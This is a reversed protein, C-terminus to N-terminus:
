SKLLRRLLEIDDNLTADIARLEEIKRVAHMVTTHDRGGFKKGIEPLSRPTLQKALYMAVQRPRAVARARRASHMDSIKVGFHDAVRKQIDEITVRKEHARLLDQLVEQAMDPTIARGVLTAQAVIRNLAGELERVNSTIRRALFELVREPVELGILQEAKAQLIGLRLEYTTPHIDAVLGWGLRSRIREELGALEAPSRDASIV